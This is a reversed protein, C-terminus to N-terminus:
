GIWLSSQPTTPDFRVAGTDGVKWTTVARRPLYGSTGQHTRGDHDHYRYEIICHPIWIQRVGGLKEYEERVLTVVGDTVTGDHALHLWNTVDRKAQLLRRVWFLTNLVLVFVGLIVLQHERWSRQLDSAVTSVLLLIAASIALNFGSRRLLASRRALSLVSLPTERDATRPVVPQPSGERAVTSSPSPETSRPSPVKGVFVHKKPRAPNFRVIATDGARFTLAVRSPIKDKGRYSRGSPDQYSYRLRYHAESGDNLGGIRKVATVTANASMGDRLLGEQENMKWRYDLLVLGGLLIAIVAMVVLWTVNDDGWHSKGQILDLGILGFFIVGCAIFVVGVGGRASASAPAPGSLAEADRHTSRETLRHTMVYM